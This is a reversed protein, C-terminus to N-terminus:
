YRLVTAIFLALMACVCAGCLLLLVNDIPSRVFVLAAGGDGGAVALAARRAVDDHAVRAADMDGFLNAFRQAEGPRWPQADNGDRNRDDHRGDADAAFDGNRFVDKM